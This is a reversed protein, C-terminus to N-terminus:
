LGCFHAARESGILSRLKPGPEVRIHKLRKDDPRLRCTTPIQERVETTVRGVSLEDRGSAFPLAIRGRVSERTYRWALTRRDPNLKGVVLAIVQPSRQTAYRRVLQHTIDLAFGVHGCAGFRVARM